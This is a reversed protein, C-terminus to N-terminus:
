EEPPTPKENLPLGLATNIAQRRKSVEGPKRTPVTRGARIAAFSPPELDDESAM